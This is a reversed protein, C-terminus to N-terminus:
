VRETTPLTLHTYSVAEAELKVNVVPWSLELSPIEDYKIPCLATLERKKNNIYIEVKDSGLAKRMRIRDSKKVNRFINALDSLDLAFVMPTSIDKVDFAYLHPIVLEAMAIRDPSLQKLRMIGGQEISVYVEGHRRQGLPARFADFWAKVTKGGPEFVFDFSKERIQALLEKPTLSKPKAKQSTLRKFEEKAEHEDLRAAVLEKRWVGNRDRRIKLIIYPSRRVAPDKLLIIFEHKDPLYKGDQIDHLNDWLWKGLREGGLARPIHTSMESLLSKLREVDELKQEVGKRVMDAWDAGSEPAFKGERVYRMVDSVPYDPFAYYLISPMDDKVKELWRGLAEIKELAEEKSVKAPKEVRLELAAPKPPKWVEAEDWAKRLASAMTKAEGERLKRHAEEMVARKVETDAKEKIGPEEVKKEEKKEARKAKAKARRPKIQYRALEAKVEKILDGIEARAEATAQRSRAAYKILYDLRRLYEKRSGPPLQSILQLAKNAQKRLRRIAAMWTATKVQTGPYDVGKIDWKEPHRMWAKVSPAIPAKRAEDLKRAREPREAHRALLKMMTAMGVHKVAGRRKRRVRRRGM